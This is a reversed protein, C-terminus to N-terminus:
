YVKLFHRSFVAIKVHKKRKRYLLFCKQYQLNKVYFNLLFISLFDKPINSLFHFLIHWLIQRYSWSLWIVGTLLTHQSNNLLICMIIFIELICVFLFYLCIFFILLDFFFVFLYLFYLCIFFLICFIFFVFFVFM